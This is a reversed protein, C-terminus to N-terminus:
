TDLSMDLCTWLPWIHGSSRQCLHTIHFKLELPIIMSHYPDPSEKIFASYSDGMLVKKFYDGSRGKRSFPDFWNCVPFSNHTHMMCIQLRAAALTLHFLVPGFLQLFATSRITPLFHRWLTLQSWSFTVSGEPQTINKAHCSAWSTIKTVWQTM